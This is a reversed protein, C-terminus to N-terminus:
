IYLLIYKVGAKSTMPSDRTSMNDEDRHRVCVGEARGVRSGVMLGVRDGVSKGDLSGVSAGESTRGVAPSENDQGTV